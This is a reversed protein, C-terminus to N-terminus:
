IRSPPARPSSPAFGVHSQLQAQVTLLLGLPELAPAPQYIAVSAPSFDNQIAADHDTTTRASRDSKLWTPPHRYVRREPRRGAIRSLAQAPSVSKHAVVRHPRSHAKRIPAADASAAWLLCPLAVALAALAKRIVPFHPHM